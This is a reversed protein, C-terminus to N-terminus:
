ECEVADSFCINTGCFSSYINMLAPFHGSSVAILEVTQNTKNIVLKAHERSVHPDALQLDTNKRGIMISGDDRM